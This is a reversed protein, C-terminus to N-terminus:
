QQIFFREIQNQHVNRQWADASLFNGAAYALHRTQM